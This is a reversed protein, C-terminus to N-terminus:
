TKRSSLMETYAFVWVEYAKYVIKSPKSKVFM